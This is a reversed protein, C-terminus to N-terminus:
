DETDDIMRKLDQVHWVGTSIGNDDILEYSCNGIKMKVTYPGIYKPCLKATINKIADSQVKNKRWVRDGVHYQVPRRRLNYAKKHKEQAKKLRSKVTEFLKQFGTIRRQVDTHDEAIIESNKHHRGDAVYERGFNIFYPTFGTTESKSTRIACGIAALHEDWRKHNEELYCSIMTKIIRNYREVPDAKPNYHATFNINVHYKNCMSKFANGRMQPGNDCILQLRM